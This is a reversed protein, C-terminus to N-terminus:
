GEGRDIDPQERSQARVEGIEQVDVPVGEIEKPLQDEQALQAQPLKRSVLVVLAVEGTSAGARKRLGVGVGVVNPRRLLAAQHKKRVEQARSFSRDAEPVPSM